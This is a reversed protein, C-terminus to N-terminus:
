VTGCRMPMRTEIKLATCPSSTGDIPVYYQEGSTGHAAQTMYQVYGYPGGKAVGETYYLGPEDETPSQYMNYFAINLSALMATAPTGSGDYYDRIAYFGTFSVSGGPAVTSKTAIGLNSPNITDTVTRVENCYTNGSSFSSWTYMSRGAAAAKSYAVFMSLQMQRPSSARNALTFKFPIVLDTVGVKCEHNVFRPHDGKAPIPQAIELIVDAKFNLGKYDTLKLVYTAAPTYTLATPSPSAPVTPAQAAPQNRGNASDSLGGKDDNSSCAGLLLATAVLGVLVKRTRM